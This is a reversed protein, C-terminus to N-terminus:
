RNGKLLFDASVEPVPPADKATFVGRVTGYARVTDNPAVPTEGGYLVRVVCPKKTCGRADDVVMVTGHNQARAELVRGEVIIPKGTSATVDAALADFGLSGNKELSAGEATLSDVKKIPITVIRAASDTGTKTQARVILEKTGAEAPAKVGFSGDENVVAIAGNITIQAGKATRGAVNLSTGEITARPGPADIHLPLVGIKASVDGSSKDGKKSTVVYPLKRDITKADGEGSVENTLDITVTANGAPDVTVPKGDLEVTDGTTVALHILLAPPTANIQSLDARIRYAVPVVISVSENRGMGPRELTLKFPNDGVVLPTPVDVDAQHQAFTAKSPGLTATTGDVCGDCVLHLQEKGDASLKASAVLPSSGRVVFAVVVATVLLVGGAVGAVLALPLGKKQPLQPASPLAEDVLPAPAPVIPPPPEYVVQAPPPAGQYTPAIGPAAVGLMTRSAAVRPAEAGPQLPAIGPAAVGLMTRSGLGAKQPEPPASAHLPAIGPIAVGLM